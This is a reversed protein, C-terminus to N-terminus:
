ALIARPHGKPHGRYTTFRVINMFTCQGFNFGSLIEIKHVKTGIYRAWFSTYCQFHYVTTKWFPASVFSIRVVKRTGPRYLPFCPPKTTLVTTSPDSTKEDLGLFVNACTVLIKQCSKHQEKHLIFVHTLAVPMKKAIIPTMIIAIKVCRMCVYVTNIIHRIQNPM